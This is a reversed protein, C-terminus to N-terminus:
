QPKVECRAEKTDRKVTGEKERYESQSEQRVINHGAM